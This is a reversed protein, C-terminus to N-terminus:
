KMAGVLALFFAFGLAFVGCAAFNLLLWVVGVPIKM